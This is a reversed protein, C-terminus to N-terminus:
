PTYITINGEEGDFLTNSYRVIVEDTYIVYVSTGMVFGHNWILDNAIEECHLVGEKNTTAYPVCFIVDGCYTLSENKKVETDWLDTIIIPTEKPMTIPREGILENDLSALLEYLNSKNNEFVNEINKEKGTLFPSLNKIINSKEYCFTEEMSSSCDQYIKELPYILYYGYFFASYFDDETTDELIHYLQTCYCLEICDCNARKGKINERINNGYVSLCGTKSCISPDREFIAEGETESAMIPMTTSMALIITLVLTILKKM